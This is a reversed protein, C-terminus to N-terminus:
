EICIGGIDKMLELDTLGLAGDRRAGEILEDLSSTELEGLYLCASDSTWPAGIGYPVDTDYFFSIRLWGIQIHWTYREMVGKTRSDIRMLDGLGLFVERHAEPLAFVTKNIAFTIRLKTLFHAQPLLLM